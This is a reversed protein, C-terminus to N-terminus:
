RNWYKRDLARYQVAEAIHAAEITESEALDAITRAVKLIREHGRGSLGMRDFASRLLSSAEKSLPCAKSLLRHPIAANSHIHRGAFREIQRQRAAQVQSRIQESDLRSSASSLSEYDTPPVEVHIDIRDLLPGSIRGLYKSMAGAPCSCNKTPHGFYGCPCPNMAAVLMFSSPFTARSGVRSVTVQKDELPARLCEMVDKPFQTFEDLFLVGNHALSVEGPKPISGGGAIAAVSVTHHPSRFPRSEVLGMSAPLLGAVSYIKTTEIQEEYTMSPLITPLRKALMSKGSGPPGVLLLNHGGAAAVTLARKAATQGKVDAMDIFINPKAKDFTMESCPILREYGKLHAIVAAVTKAPYVQVGKVAAGEAANEFPIIVETMGLAAAGLVMALVGRVPRLRGGLSLEGIFGIGEVSAELQGCALAIAMFVALDYVSGMKRSDAPALNVIVRATPFQMGSNKMAARVRDRSEKVAADPLGVLEFSPLGRSVDAEVTVPGAEIGNLEFSKTGALMHPGGEFMIRWILVHKLGLL